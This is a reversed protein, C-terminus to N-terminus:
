RVGVVLGRVRAGLRSVEAVQGSIRAVLVSFGAVLANVVAVLGSVVVSESSWLDPRFYPPTLGASIESRIEFRNKLTRLAPGFAIPHAASYTHLRIESRVEVHKAFNRDAHQHKKNEGHICLCCTTNM